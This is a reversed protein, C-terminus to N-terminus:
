NDDLTHDSDLTLDKDSLPCINPLQHTAVVVAAPSDTNGPQGLALRLQQEHHWLESIRFRLVRQLPMRTASYPSDCSVDPYTNPARLQRLRQKLIIRLVELPSKNTEEPYPDTVGLAEMLAAEVDTIHEILEVVTWTTGPVPKNACEAGAQAALAFLAKSTQEYADIDTHFTWQADRSDPAQAATDETPPRSDDNNSTM